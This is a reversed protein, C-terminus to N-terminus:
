LYNFMNSVRFRFWSDLATFNKCGEGEVAAILFHLTIHLVILRDNREM